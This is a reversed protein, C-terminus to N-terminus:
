FRRSHVTIHLGDSKSTATPLDMAFREADTIPHPCRWREMALGEAETIPQLCRSREIAYKDAEAM